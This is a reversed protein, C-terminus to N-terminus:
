LVAKKLLTTVVNIVKVCFESTTELVSVLSVVQRIKVSPSMTKISQLYIANYSCWSNWRRWCCKIINYFTQLKKICCEPFWYFDYLIVFHYFYYHYYTRSITNRIFTLSSHFISHFNNINAICETSWKTLVGTFYITRYFIHTKSLYYNWQVNTGRNHKGPIATDYLLTAMCHSKVRENRVTPVYNVDSSTQSLFTFSTTANNQTM